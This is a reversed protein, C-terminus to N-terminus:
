IGLEALQALVSEFEDDAEECYNDWNNKSWLEVRNMAGIAVVEKEMEAKERLRAPLLIRGQKDPKVEEASAFLMRLFVQGKSDTMPISKMKGAFELWMESSFVFLCKGIGRTVIFNEGLEERFKAPVFVRGKADLTHAYTGTFM